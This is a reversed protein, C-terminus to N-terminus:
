MHAESGDYIPRKQEYGCDNCKGYGDRPHYEYQCTSQLKKLEAILKDGSERLNVIQGQFMADIRKIAKEKAEATRKYLRECSKSIQTIKKGLAQAQKRLEGQTM